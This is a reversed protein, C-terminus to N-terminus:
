CEVLHSHWVGIVRRAPLQWTRSIRVKGGHALRVAIADPGELGDAKRFLAERWRAQSVVDQKGCPERHEQSRPLIAADMKLPCIAVDVIGIVALQCAHLHRRVIHHFVQLALNSVDSGGNSSVDRRDLLM